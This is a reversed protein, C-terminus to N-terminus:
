SQKSVSENTVPQLESRPTGTGVSAGHRPGPVQCRPISWETNESITSSIALRAGLWVEHWDFQLQIELKCVCGLGAWDLHSGLWEPFCCFILDQLCLEAVNYIVRSLWFCSLTQYLLFFNFVVLRLEECCENGTISSKIFNKLINWSIHFMNKSNMKFWLYNTAYSIAMLHKSLM